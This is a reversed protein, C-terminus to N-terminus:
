KDQTLVVIERWVKQAPRGYIITNRDTLQIFNNQQLFKPIPNIIKFGSLDPSVRHTKYFVPWIMVIKGKPKLLKKFENLSKSYLMNLEKTIKDVNFKGRTPGLYPETIIADISKPKISKSLGTIDYSYLRVKFNPVQFKSKIWAINKKTDNIAKASLDSGILNNFGLLQSETLITGSGCFPDLIIDQTKAGSLNILIQALKPPLM